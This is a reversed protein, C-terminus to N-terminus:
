DRVEREKVRLNEPYNEAIQEVGLALARMLIQADHDKGDSLMVKLYGGEPSQDESLNADTLQEIANATNIVLVSVASCVVDYGPDAAEAHGKMEFGLVKKGSKYLVAQIM